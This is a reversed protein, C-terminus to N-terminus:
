EQEKKQQEEAEAAAALKRAREAAVNAKEQQIRLAVAAVREEREKKEQVATEAIRQRNQQALLWCDRLLRLDEQRKAAVATSDAMSSCEPVPDPAKKALTLCCEDWMIPSDASVDGDAEWAPTGETGFTRLADFLESILVPKPKSNGTRRHELQEFVRAALLCAQTYLAPKHIWTSVDDVARWCEKCVNKAMTWQVPLCKRRMSKQRAGLLVSVNLLPGICPPTFYLELGADLAIAKVTFNMRTSKNEILNRLEPLPMAGLEELWKPNGVDLWDLCAKEQWGTSPDDKDGNAGLDTCVGQGLFSCMAGTKSNITPQAIVHRATRRICGMDCKMAAPKLHRYLDNGREAKAVVSCLEVVLECWAQIFKHADTNSEATMDESVEANPSV